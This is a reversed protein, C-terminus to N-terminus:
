WNGKVLVWLIRLGHAFANVKSDGATRKKEFSPIEKHKFGAKYAKIPFEICYEFNPSRMDISEFVKRKAAIYLFLSDSLPVGHIVNLLFTFVKNGIFRIWTDDDSGSEPLYRSGYAIDCDDGLCALLKPIDKTEYSGDADIFMLVDGKAQEVGYAVADGYGKGPQIMVRAGLNESIERTKDTSNGDIVLIEDVSEKQIDKIVEAICKEENFAPIIVTVTM